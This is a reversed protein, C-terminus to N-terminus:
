DGIRAWSQELTLDTCASGDNLQTGAGAAQTIPDQAPQPLPVSVFNKTRATEGNSCKGDFQTNEIWKGNAFVYPQGTGDADLFYSFCREGTRLCDTRVNGDFEQVVKNSFDTKVHYRGHLAQGPSIVRPAQNEPDPLKSVNTDATRTFTATRTLYCGNTTTQAWEGTFTGGAQPQLIVVDWQEADVNYCKGPQTTVAIWQDGVQDFVLDKAPFQGGTSATAVCGGDGCASRLSWTETLEPLSTGTLAGNSKTQPGFAATYAGTFPGTNPKSEPETTRIASLTSTSTSTSDGQGGSNLAIVAIIAVVTVLAGVGALIAVRKRSTEPARPNVAYQMPPHFNPGNPPRHPAQGYPPVGGTPPPMARPPPGGSQTPPAPHQNVRLPPATPHYPNSNTPPAAIADQAAKALDRATAYREDPNKAMGRAVVADLAAPVNASTASPRPPNLALHGGLQQEVSDGPFPQRATLCEYLVCGLAYIDARPDTQGATVREPAMYAWTGVLGGSTTLSTEGATRAIGFDILYAFDDDTILINSPKVDRHVLGTQHAAHLASAIQDIIAVARAPQMPGDALVTQLDRGKILRMTVYLRGDIEGFDFIPVVHPEDLAAAARAERRFRQQFVEDDAYQGPLVKLAVVRETVTDFAQWVEGMGGRGLLELLRYRGFPTGEVV